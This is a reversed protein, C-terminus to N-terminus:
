AEDEFYGTLDRFQAREETSARRFSIIRIVEGPRMTTAFFVVRGDDDLGMIMHRVEGGENFADSIAMPRDDVPLLINELVYVASELSYGHNRRNKEEKEEDYEIKTRGIILRFEYEPIGLREHYEMTGWGYM